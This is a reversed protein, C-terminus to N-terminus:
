FKKLNIKPFHNTFTINLKNINILFINNKNLYYKKNRCKKFNKVNSFITSTSSFFKFFLTNVM